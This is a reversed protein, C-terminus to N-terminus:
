EEALVPLMTKPELERVISPLCYVRSLPVVRSTVWFPMSSLVTFMAYLPVAALTVTAPLM